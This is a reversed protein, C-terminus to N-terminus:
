TKPCASCTQFSRILKILGSLGILSYFFRSAITWGGLLKAVADVQFLGIMGWNLAGLIVLASAIKCFLCAAKM